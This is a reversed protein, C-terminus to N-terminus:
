LARTKWVQKLIQSIIWHTIKVKAKKVCCDDLVEVSDKGTNKLKFAATCSVRGVPTDVTWFVGAGFLLKFYRCHATHWGSAASFIYTSFSKRRVTGNFSSSKLFLKEEM